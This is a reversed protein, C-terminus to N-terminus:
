HGHWPGVTLGEELHGSQRRHHDHRHHHHEWERTGHHHGPHQEHSWSAHHHEHCVPVKKVHVIYRCLLWAAKIEGLDRPLRFRGFEHTGNGEIPGLHCPMVGHYLGPWDPTVICPVSKMTECSCNEDNETFVHNQAFYTAVIHERINAKDTEIFLDLHTIQIQRNGTLFPFMNRSLKLHLDRHSTPNQPHVRLLSWSDIFEHKIDFLRLGNGPLHRQAAENAARRLQDGGERATYNLQLIVDSLSDLDFQNNEPPLEIRWRSVAGAFEFPLYREDNFNLQFLGADSQGSSTAISETAGYQHRFRPDKLEAEYGSHRFNDPCCRNGPDILTRGVRIISSMLQLRCHVGTYPGVICPITLSVNKIRRMYQGPYDLDFMWEPIDIECYGVTKLHLFAAPFHTLLSIHKTLEYERCNSEEYARQMTHLALELREGAMLGEHMSDWVGDPLFNRMTDGREYHLLQQAERAAELALNYTQRYIAATEQQLFLYLDHKTFKDRMFDQVEISHEIARQQNNLQRLSIDRRREAALIQREIQQIEITIVDVQHQWDDLRRDWEAQTLELSATTSAIEALSNLIRAATAFGTGLKNGVPVQSFDLPSGGTGAVGFWMDPVVTMGQAVGESVNGGTRSAISVGTATEYGIEGSNLGNRIMDQYQRLRTQAGLLTKQLAQVQWDSERWTNKDTDLTLHQLQRDHTAHLAALYEADGKEFASLLSSGLSQVMGVLELARPLLYSFRYPHRGHCVQTTTGCGDASEMESGLCPGNCQCRADDCDHVLARRDAAREYLELLRPNLPAPSSKFGKVTMSISKDHGHVRKPRTGLIKEILDFVVIAERKTQRSGKCLLADGYQLLVELYDLLIARGRTVGPSGSQYPCCTVNRGSNAIERHAIASPSNIDTPSQAWTNDMHQPNFAVEYWKLCAKFRGHSRLAGAIAVCVTFQSPPILPAGPEFYVFLPYSQLPKPFVSINIAPDLVIQPLVVASDSIIDYRFGSGLPLPATVTFNLSDTTRGLFALQPIPSNAATPDVPLGEDSRRPPEFKGYHVRTWFLHIMGQSNWQLM